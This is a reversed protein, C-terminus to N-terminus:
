DRCQSNILQINRDDKYLRLIFKVSKGLFRSTVKDASGTSSISAPQMLSTHALLATYQQYYNSFFETFGKPDELIASFTPPNGSRNAFQYARYGPPDFWVTQNSINVAGSSGEGWSESVGFLHSDMIDWPHVNSLFRSNRGSSSSPRLLRDPGQASLDLPLIQYTPNCILFNSKAIKFVGKGQSALVAAIIAVRRDDNSDSGNCPGDLMGVIQLHDGDVPVNPINSEPFFNFTCSGATLPGYANATYNWRWDNVSSKAPECELGGMFGDVTTNLTSPTDLLDSEILQYAYTDSVGQPLAMNFDMMSAFNSLALSGNTELGDPSNVFESKLSLRVSAYKVRAPSLTILSTTLVLLVRILLSTVTAAAVTYDKYRLASIISLPQFQSTYDLLLSQGAVTNGRAMSFWPATTKTQVELGTWFSAVLTLIATPTYSWFVRHLTDDDGSFGVHRNSIALVTQLGALCALFVVSFAALSTPSLYVPRWPSPKIMTKAPADRIHENAQVESLSIAEDLSSIRKKSTRIKTWAPLQM